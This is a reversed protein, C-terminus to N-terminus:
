AWAWAWASAIRREFGAGDARKNTLWRNDLIDGALALFADRNGIDARRVHLPEAFAPPAGNIAPDAASRLINM